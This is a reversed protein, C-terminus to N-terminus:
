PLPVTVTGSLAETGDPKRCGVECQAVHGTETERVSQVEGFVTVTEGPFVPAKFRLKMKGGSHWTEPFNSAMLESVFAMSLMGHAIVGGFQTTKAYGPDLHVPNFDGSAEAYARIREETVTRSFGRLQQGAQFQGQAGRETM